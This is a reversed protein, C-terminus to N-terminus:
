SQDEFSEPICWRSWIRTWASIWEFSHHQEFSKQWLLQQPPLPLCAPSRKSAGQFSKGLRKRRNGHLHNRRNKFPPQRKPGPAIDKQTILGNGKRLIDELIWLARESKMVDGSQSHDSYMPANSTSGPVMKVPLSLKTYPHLHKIKFPLVSRWNYQLKTGKQNRFYFRVLEIIYFLPLKYVFLSSLQM